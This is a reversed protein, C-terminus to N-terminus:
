IHPRHQYNHGPGERRVCVGTPGGDTHILLDNNHEGAPSAWRGYRVSKRTSNSCNNTQGNRWAHRIGKFTSWTTKM